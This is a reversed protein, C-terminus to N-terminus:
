FDARYGINMFYASSNDRGTTLKQSSWESGAELEFELRRRMRYNLRLTPALTWQTSNDRDNKRYDLRVRPNIRWADNFPYRSDLTLSTTKSTSADSFRLGLIGVDGAKLLDNGILQASYFYENGTGPIGQVGGSTVTSSVNSVTFDGNVQYRHTIPHSFGLTVSRSKATRDLALQRIQSESYSQKLTDLSTTTQGQLANSTTLLPSRRIDVTANLSTGDQLTWNGLAFFSNLENYSVDYDVSTLLSRKTDFYRVEGGTARRDLLGFAHQEIYFLVFDLRDWFSGLDTSIGYFYRNTDIGDKTSQVPSGFVGNFRVQPLWRYSALFGDFRGLVGGTSRTQRGARLSYRTSPDAIDLYLSALRTRSGNGNNLFDHDYGGTFRTRLDYRGARHRGTLDLDTSLLSQTTTTGTVDTVSIDRRYYQSLGGFVEWPSKRRSPRTREVLRAKPTARVTIVGLLRQKVRQADRGKPYLDLYEEYIAKAQAYQQRRERAMGLRELAQKRYAASGREVLETYLQVARRYNGSTFAADAERRIRAARRTPLAPVDTRHAVAYERHRRRPLNPQNRVVRTKEGATVRTVWAKPYRRALKRRMTEAEAKTRFFGLRLRYWVGGELAADTVYLYYSLRRLDVPIDRRRFPRTSSALNVVYRGPLVARAPATPKHPAPAAGTAAATGARATPVLDIILVRADGSMHIRRYGMIRRFRVLLRAQGAVDPEFRVETLPIRQTPTWQLLENRQPLIETNSRDFASITRMRIQIESGRHAPSHSIYQVPTRFHIRVQPTAGAPSVDISELIAEARALLPLLLGILLILTSIGARPPQRM